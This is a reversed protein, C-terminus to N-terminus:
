VGLKVFGNTKVPTIPWFARRVGNNAVGKELASFSKSPVGLRGKGAQGGVEPQRWRLIGVHCGFVGSM